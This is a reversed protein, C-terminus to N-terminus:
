IKHTFYNRKIIKDMLVSSSRNIKKTNKSNILFVYCSPFLNMIM